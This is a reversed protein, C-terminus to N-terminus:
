FSITQLCAYKSLVRQFRLNPRPKTAFASGWERGFPIPLFQLEYIWYFLAVTEDREANNQQKQQAADAILALSSVVHLPRWKEGFVVQLKVPNLIGGSPVAGASPEAAEAAPRFARGETRFAGPLRSCFPCFHPLASFGTAKPPQIKKAKDTQKTQFVLFLVYYHGGSCLVGSLRYVITGREWFFCYVFFLLLFSVGVYMVFFIGAFAQM